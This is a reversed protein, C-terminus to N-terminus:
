DIPPQSLRYLVYNGLSSSRRLHLLDKAGNENDEDDTSLSRYPCLMKCAVDRCVPLINVQRVGDVASLRFLLLSLLSLSFQDM